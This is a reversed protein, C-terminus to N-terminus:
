SSRLDPVSVRRGNLVADYQARIANLARSMEEGEGARQYGYCFTCVCVVIYIHFFPCVVDRGESKSGSRRLPFFYLLLITHCFDKKKVGINNLYLM